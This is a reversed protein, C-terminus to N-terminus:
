IEIKQVEVRVQSRFFRFWIVGGVLDGIVGFTNNHAINLNKPKYICKGINSESKEAQSHSFDLGLRSLRLYSICM